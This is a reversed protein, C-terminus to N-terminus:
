NSVSSIISSIVMLLFIIPMFRQITSSVILSPFLEPLTFALVISILFILLLSKQSLFIYTFHVNEKHDLSLINLVCNRYLVVLLRSDENLGNFSYEKSKDNPSIINVLNSLFTPKNYQFPKFKSVIDHSLDKVQILSMDIISSKVITSSYDRIWNSEIKWIYSYYCISIIDDNDDDNKLNLSKIYEMCELDNGIDISNYGKIDSKYFRKENISHHDIYELGISDYQKDLDFLDDKYISHSDSFFGNEVNEITGFGTLLDVLSFPDFLAWSFANIWEIDKKNNGFSNQFYSFDKSEKSKKIRKLENDVKKFQKYGLITKEKKLTILDSEINYFSLTNGDSTLQAKRFALAGSSIGDLGQIDLHYLVNGDKLQYNIEKNLTYDKLFSESNGYGIVRLTFLRGLFAFTLSTAEKNMAVTPKKLWYLDCDFPDNINRVSMGDISMEDAISFKHVVNHFLVKRKWYRYANNYNITENLKDNIINSYKRLDLTYLAMRAVVMEKDNYYSVSFVNIILPDPSYVQQAYVQKGMSEVFSLPGPIRIEANYYFKNDNHDINDNIWSSNPIEDSYFDEKDNEDRNNLLTDKTQNYEKEITSFLGKYKFNWTRNPIYTFLHKDNWRNYIISGTYGVSFHNFATNGPLKVDTAENYVSKSKCDYNFCRKYLETEKIIAEYTSNTDNVIFANANTASFLNRINYKEWLTINCENDSDVTNNVYDGISIINSLYSIDESEIRRYLSFLQPYSSNQLKKFTLHTLLGSHRTSSIHTADVFTRNTIDDKKLNSVNHHMNPNLILKDLPLEYHQLLVEGQQFENPNLFWKSIAPIGNDDVIHDINRIKPYFQFNKISNVVNNFEDIRSYDLDEIKYKFNEGNSPDKPFSPRPVAVELTDVQDIWSLHLQSGNKTLDLGIAISIRSLGPFIIHNSSLLLPIEVSPIYLIYLIAIFGFGASLLITAKTYRWLM